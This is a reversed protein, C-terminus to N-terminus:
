HGDKEGGEEERRRETEANFWEGVNGKADKRSFAGRRGERGIAWQRSGTAEQRNDETTVDQNLTTVKKM